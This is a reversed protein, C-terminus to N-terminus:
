KGAALAADLAAELGESGYGSWRCRGDLGFLSVAPIGTIGLADEFADAGYGVPWDFGATEKVVGKVKALDQEPERTFGVFQVGLPRYKAAIQAMHPLDARCPGCWTAWCEVVTLKGPSASVSTQGEPLNLWGEAMFKPLPAGRAVPTEDGGGGDHSSMWAAALLAAPILVMAADRVTRSSM